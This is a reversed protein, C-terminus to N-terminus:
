LYLFSVFFNIKPKSVFNFIFERMSLFFGRFGKSGGRCEVIIGEIM